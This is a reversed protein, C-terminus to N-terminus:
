IHYGWVAGTVLIILNMLSTYWGTLWNQKSYLAKRVSNSLNIKKNKAPPNASKQGPYDWCLIYIIVWLIVGLLVNLYIAERWGFTVVLNDMPAQAYFGGLMAMTVVAGTVAAIKDERFWRSALVISSLLCFAGGIGALFRCLALAIYSHSSAFCFTAIICLAMASLILKRTSIRDLVLGAILLFSVNGYLAVSSLWSLQSATLLFEKTIESNISNFINMQIFEYFFFVTCIFSLGGM